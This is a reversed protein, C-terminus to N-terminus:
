ETTLFDAAHLQNGPFDKINNRVRRSCPKGEPIHRPLRNVEKVKHRTISINPNADFAIKDPKDNRYIDIVEGSPTEIRIFECDYQKLVLM